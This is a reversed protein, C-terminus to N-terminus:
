RPFATVTRSCREAAVDEAKRGTDPYSRLTPYSGIEKFYAVGRATCEEIARRNDGNTAYLAVFALIAILLVAATRSM